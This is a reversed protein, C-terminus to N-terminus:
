GDRTYRWNQVKLAALLLEIAPWSLGSAAHIGHLEDLTIGASQAMNEIRFAMERDHARQWQDAPSVTMEVNLTVEQAWTAINTAIDAPSPGPTQGAANLDASPVDVFGATGGDTYAVQITM